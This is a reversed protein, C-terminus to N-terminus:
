SADDSSHDGAPTTWIRVTGDHSGAAFTFPEDTSHNWTVCTLDRGFTQPRIYHLSAASDRDWIHIDGSKGACLVLQDEEALTAPVRSIWRLYTHRLLLRAVQAYPQGRADRVLEMKWLQPPTEHEFSILVNGGRKSIAIDRVDNAVPTQNEFTRTEVNFVIIRTEVRAARSSHLGKPAALLSDVGLLRQGDPTVAANHLQICGFHYSDLALKFVDSGEVSFFQTESNPLWAISPVSHPRDIARKCLGGETWVKIGRTLRTLLI